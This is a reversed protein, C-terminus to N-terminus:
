VAQSIPQVAEARRLERRAVDRGLAAAAVAGFVAPGLGFILGFGLGADPDRPLLMIVVVLPLTVVLSALAARGASRRPRPAPERGVLPAIVAGLLLGAVAGVPLGIILGYFMILLFLGTVSDGPSSAFATWVMGVVAYGLVYAVAAVVGWLLGRVAGYAILSTM